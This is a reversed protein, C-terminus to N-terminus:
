STDKRGADAKKLLRGRASKFVGMMTKAERGSIFARGIISRFTKKALRNEFEKDYTEDILEDFFRLMYDKEVKNLPTYKKGLTKRRNEERGLEYLIIAASQALNLTPYEKNAPITVLFDCRDIEENLLGYDERGFVIAVKGKANLANALEEPFVPTRLHNSDGGVKASTGVIFDYRDVVEDFSKLRLASQVIDL